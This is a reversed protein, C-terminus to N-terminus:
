LVPVVVINKLILLTGVSNTEKKMNNEEYPSHQKMYEQRQNATETEVKM